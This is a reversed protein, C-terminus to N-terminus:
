SLRRTGETLSPGNWSWLRRRAEEGAELVRRAVDTWAWIPPGATDNREGAVAPTKACAVLAEVLAGTDGPPIWRVPTRPDFAEPLGPVASAVVPRGARLYEALKLPSFYFREVPEYPAVLVDCAALHEPVQAHAVAGAFRVRDQIGLAVTRQELAEREPGHGVVLVRLHPVEPSASAVADLLRDVGHWPKLSGCFGVVFDGDLDHLRRVDRGDHDPHFLKPDVANPLLLIRERPVGLGLVHRRVGESVAVVFDARRALRREMWRALWALRLGRYSAEEDALPSNVELLFPVALYGALWAGAFSTLAYREYILDPRWGEVLQRGQRYLAACDILRLIAREGPEGGRTWGALWAAVGKWRKGSTAEFVPAAAEPGDEPGARRTLVASEIGLDRFASLVSRVHVSAGKDGRVPVGRDASVYLVKEIGLARGFRRARREGAAHANFTRSVCDRARAGLVGRLNRDDLLRALADALASPNEPPVVLGNEGDQVLEEIGPLSTSVVPLGCAMAEALTNPIGDRDGDETTRCALTFCAARRLAERVEERVCMGRIHARDGLGLEAIRTELRDRESGEGLIELRFAHGRAALLSAAELLVDFGKKPVLRGVSVIIPHDEEVRAAPAFYGTDVGHHLLAIETEPLGSARRVAFQRLTEQSATSCALSFRAAALKKALSSPRSLHIDKAHAGMSWPIGTLRGAIRAVSAPGHAWAAHLHAVHDRRLRVALDAARVLRRFSRRRPEQLLRLVQKTTGSPRVRFCAWLNAVFRPMSSWRPEPLVYTEPVLDQAEPHVRADRTPALLSYIKVPVGHRRLAQIEELIFTESIRPFMKALYGVSGSRGEWPSPAPDALLDSSM